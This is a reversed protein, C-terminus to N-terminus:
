QGLYKWKKRNVIKCITSKDVGFELALDTQKAGEKHRFLIDRVQKESLKACPQDEGRLKETRSKTDHCKYCLVRCKKLEEDRRKQTWSWIRHTLKSSPDIHDIQLKDSYGCIECPGNDLIWVQRRKSIWEAQYAAQKAPDSYPM